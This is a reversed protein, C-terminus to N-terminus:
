SHAGGPTANGVTTDYWDRLDEAAASPIGYPNPSDRDMLRNVRGSLNMMGPVPNFPTTFGTLVPQGEDIARKVDGRWIEWRAGPVARRVAEAVYYMLADLLDLTDDSWWHPAQIPQRGYWMPVNAGRPAYYRGWSGRDILDLPESEARRRFQGIAWTWLPVLSDRSFDLQDPAPGGTRASRERLWQLRPEAGALYRRLYDEDEAAQEATVRRRRGM